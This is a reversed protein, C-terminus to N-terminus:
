HPIDYTQQQYIYNQSKKKCMTEQHITNPNQYTTYLSGWHCTVNIM